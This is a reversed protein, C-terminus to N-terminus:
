GGSLHNKKERWFFQLYVDHQYNSLLIIVWFIRRRSCNFIWIFYKKPPAESSFKSVVGASQSSPHLTLLSLSLYFTFNLALVFFFFRFRRSIFQPSYLNNSSTRKIIPNSNLLLSLKKKQPHCDTLKVGVCM